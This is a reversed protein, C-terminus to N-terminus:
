LVVGSSYRYPGNETIEKLRSRMSSGILIGLYFGEESMRIQSYPQVIIPDQLVVNKSTSILPWIRGDVTVVCESDVQLGVIMDLNYPNKSRMFSIDTFFLPCLADRMDDAFTVGDEIAKHILDRIEDLKLVESKYNICTHTNGTYPSSFRFM